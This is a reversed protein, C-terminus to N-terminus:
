SSYSRDSEAESGSKFESPHIGQSGEQYRLANLRKEYMNQLHDVHEQQDLKHKKAEPEEESEEEEPTRARKKGEAVKERHAFWAADVPDDELKNQRSSGAGPTMVGRAIDALREVPTKPREQSQEQPHEVRIIQHTQLPPPLRGRGSDAREERKDPQRIGEGSKKM